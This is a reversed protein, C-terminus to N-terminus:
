APNPEFIWLPTGRKSQQGSKKKFNAIKNYKTMDYPTYLFLTKSNKQAMLVAEKVLKEGIGNGKESTWWCEFSLGNLNTGPCIKESLSYGGLPSNDVFLVYHNKKLVEIEEKERNIWHGSKVNIDYAVDFIDGNTLPEIIANDLNICLSGSGLLHNIEQYIGKTSTIVVKNVHTLLNDIEQLKKQMGDNAVINPHQGALIKQISTQTLISVLKNQKNLVGGTKTAFIIENIQSHYKSTILAVIEDANVNLTQNDFTTGVFGITTLSKSFDIKLKEPTGTYGLNDFDKISCKLNTYDLFQKDSIAHFATKLKKQIDEYAPIVGDKLVKTSTIGVGNKKPRPTQHGNKKWHLDIQSGGGFVLIVKIKNAILQKIDQVTQVFDESAIEAGSIKILLTKDQYIEHFMNNEVKQLSSQLTKM